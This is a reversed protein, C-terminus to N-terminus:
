RGISSYVTERTASSLWKGYFFAAQTAPEGQSATDPSVM